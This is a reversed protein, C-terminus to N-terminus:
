YDKYLDAPVYKGDEVHGSHQHSIGVDMWGLNKADELNDTPVAISGTGFFDEKYGEYGYKGKNINHTIARLPIWVSKSFNRKRVDQLEFWDQNVM